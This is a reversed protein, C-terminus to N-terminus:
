SNKERRVSAIAKQWAQWWLHKPAWDRGEALGRAVYENRRMFLEFSREAKQTQSLRRKKAM